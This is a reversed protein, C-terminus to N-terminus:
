NRINTGYFLKFLMRKQGKQGKILEPGEDIKLKISKKPNFLIPMVVIALEYFFLSGHV